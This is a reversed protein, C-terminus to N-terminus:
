SSRREIEDTLHAIRQEFDWFIKSIPAQLVRLRAIEGLIARAHLAGVPRLPQPVTADDTCAAYSQALGLKKAAGAIERGPASGKRPRM